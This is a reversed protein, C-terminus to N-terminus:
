IATLTALLRSRKAANTLNVGLQTNGDEGVHGANLLSYRSDFGACIEHQGSKATIGLLCVVCQVKIRLEDLFQHAGAGDWHNSFAPYGRGLLRSLDYRHACEGDHHAGGDCTGHLDGAAKCQRDLAFVGSVMSHPVGNADIESPSLRLVTNYARVAGQEEFSGHLCGGLGAGACQKIM